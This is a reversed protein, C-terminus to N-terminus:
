TQRGHREMSLGSTNTALIPKGRYAQELRAFLSTKLELNEPVAEIILDPPDSPLDSVMNIGKPITGIRGPDRSLVTVHHKGRVFSLAIGQGMIGYGVIMVHKIM